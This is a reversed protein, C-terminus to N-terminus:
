ILESLRLLRQVLVATEARTISALPALENAARGNTLGSRLSDVVSGKAWASILVADQFGSLGDQAGLAPLKKSLGTLGMARTLIVMAQERTISATPRYTGDEFGDLLGYTRATLLADHYWDTTKVDSFPASGKMPKLGLGRVLIAAFEARTVSLDPAFESDSKGEVVLRSGMDNIAEKAWHGAADPFQKPNWIVSYASNSLSNIIAQYRDKEMFVKTPVHWFNGAGDGTIGTTIKNPDVQAPLTITREVYANFRDVEVEKNGYTATIHFIVPAAVLEFGMKDASEEAAKVSSEDSQTIEIRIKIDQLNVNSGLQGTIASINIQDAPLRYSAQETKIEVIAEKEEMSKVMAGTLEGAIVDSNLNVPITLVAGTGETALREELKKPDVTITTVTQNGVKETKATGANEEKGNVLVVVGTDPNTVPTQPPSPPSPSPPASPTVSNSPASATSSGQGNVAAVTFTYSTGNSLGDVRIPSSTGSVTRGGPSVTVTYGTVPTGGTSAPATFSVSAYGDGATASVGTPVGPVTLPTASAQNSYAGDVTDIQGVIVFYYLTGNTLGTVNKGYVSGAVTDILSGYVGSTVSQYVKYGTAREVPTWSLTVAGDGSPTAVLTSTGPSKVEVSNSYTIADPPSLDTVHTLKARFQYMHGPDFSVDISTPVGTWTQPLATWAAAYDVKQELSISTAANLIDILGSPFSLKASSYTVDSVTLAPSRYGGVVTYYQKNAPSTVLTTDGQDLSISVNDQSNSERLQEGILYADDSSVLSQGNVIMTTNTTVGDWSQTIDVGSDNYLLLNGSISLNTSYFGIVSIASSVYGLQTTSDYGTIKNNTISGAGGYIYMAYEYGDSQRLRQPYDTGEFSNNTIELAGSRIAIANRFANSSDFKSNKITTSVAGPEAHVGLSLNDGPVPNNHFDLLTTNDMTLSGGTKVNIVTHISNSGNQLTVDKLKLHSGTGEVRIFTQVGAYNIGMYTVVVGDAGVVTDTVGAGARIVAGHGIIQLSRSITGGPFDYIRGEVLHITSVASNNIYSKLSLSDIATVESRSETTFTWTIKDAIGGYMDGNANKFAGSAIEIYYATNYLLDYVPNITVTSGSATLAGSNTNITEATIDDAAYKIKILKGSVVTVPEEFTITLDGYVSVGVSAPAPGFSDVNFAPDANAPNASLLPMVGTLLLM